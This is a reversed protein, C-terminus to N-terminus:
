QSQQTKIPPSYFQRGLLFSASRPVARIEHTIITENQQSLRKEAFAPLGGDIFTVQLLFILTSDSAPEDRGAITNENVMGIPFNARRLADLTPVSSDHRPDLM